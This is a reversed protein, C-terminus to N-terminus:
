HASEAEKPPPCEIPDYTAQNRRAAEKAKETRDDRAQQDAEEKHQWNTQLVAVLDTRKKPVLRWSRPEAEAGRSLFGMVRYLLCASVLILAWPRATLFWDDLNRPLAFHCCQWLYDGAIFITLLLGASSLSLFLAAWLGYLDLFAFPIGYWVANANHGPVLASRPNISVDKKEGVQEAVADRMVKTVVSHQLKGVREIGLVGNRAMACADKVYQLERVAEKLSQDVAGGVHADLTNLYAEALSLHLQAREFLKGTLLFGYWCIGSIALSLSTAWLTFPGDKAALGGLVGLLATALALLFTTVTSRQSEHHRALTSQELYMTKLHDFVMQRDPGDQPKAHDAM